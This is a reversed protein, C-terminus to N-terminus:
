MLDFDEIFYEQIEFAKKIIKKVVDENNKGYIDIIDILKPLDVLWEDL